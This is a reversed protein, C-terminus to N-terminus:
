RLPQWNGSPIFSAWYYPHSRDQSKLMEIQTQRLAESRGQGALLKRYYGVILEQTADDDVKWLSIVQSEAGAIVLARRLGYIGEGASLRGLGTDCASLVVLQTGLLNLNAVELATLIGDERNQPKLKFGALVLGSFLLPNDALTTEPLVPQTTAFFGHTAIHLIRPRNVQKVAEETAQSGTLPQVNLLPAIANIEKATGPLSRFDQQTLDITRTRINQEAKLSQAPAVDGLKAFYPDAILVPPFQSPVSNALRLLDRGSTLYTFAYAEVLYHNTDDVLAEFPILNLNGDPSLLITRTNGLLKRVPQMVWKELDHSLPQLQNVPIHSDSIVSRFKQLVQNIKETDGLDIGKPNGQAYLVYAAYRTSLGNKASSQPDFVRYQVFEVLAANAPILSQISEITVPRSLTRFVTSRRSLEDEQQRLREELAAIQTQYQYRDLPQQQPSAFVLKALQDRTAFIRDLRDRDASAIQQRLIRQLNASFDLARGKRQLIATFALRAAAPNNPLQQLHLAIKKDLDLATNELVSPRNSESGNSLNLALNYEEIAQVQWLLELSRDVKGQQLYLKALSELDWAVAYDKEGLDRRHQELSALFATEAEADRGQQLYLFGLQSPNFRSQEAPAANQSANNQSLRRNLEFAQKYLREAEDSRGQEAYFFALSNLSELVKPDTEGYLRRKIELSERYFQEAELSRKQLAYLFALQNLYLLTEAHDTGFTQRSAKFAREFLLTAEAYRDQAMYNWGLARLSKLVDPHTPDLLAERIALAREALPFAEKYQGQSFLFSAQVSLQEAQHLDEPRIATPALNWTLTYRGFTDDAFISSRQSAALVTYMGTAPLTVVLRANSSGSGGGGEAIKNGTPDLLILYTDFEHSTLDIKVRQGATGRFPHANFYTSDGLQQSTRDLRGQVTSQQSRNDSVASGSQALTAAPLCLSFSLLMLALFRYASRYSDPM